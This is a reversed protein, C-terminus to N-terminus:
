DCGSLARQRLYEIEQKLQVNEVILTRQATALALLKHHESQYAQEYRSSREALQICLKGAQSSFDIFRECTKTLKHDNCLSGTNEQDEQIDM